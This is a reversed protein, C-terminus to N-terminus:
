KGMVINWVAGNNEYTVKTIAHALANMGEGHYQFYREGSHLAAQKGQVDYGTGSDRIRIVYAGTCEILKLSVHLYPDAANGHFIANRLLEEFPYQVEQFRYYGGLSMRNDCAALVARVFRRIEVCSTEYAQPANQLPNPDFSSKGPNWLEYAVIGVYGGLEDILADITEEQLVMFILM